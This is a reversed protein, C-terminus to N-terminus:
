GDLLYSRQLRTRTLNSSQNIIALHSEQFGLRCPKLMPRQCRIVLYFFDLSYPVRRNSVNDMDAGAALHMHSLNRTFKLTTTNPLADMMRSPREWAPTPWTPDVKYFSYHLLQCHETSRLSPPEPERLRPRLIGFPLFVERNFGWPGLSWAHTSYPLAFMLHSVVKLLEDPCTRPHQCARRAYPTWKGAEQEPWLMNKTADQYSILFVRSMRLRSM